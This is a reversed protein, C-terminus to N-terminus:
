DGDTWTPRVLGAEYATVVLQARDRASLKSMIRSVHTKATAPSLFLKGAIEDNSMGTAVLKLVETERETLAGLKSSPEPRAVRGAFEGILRRTIKPSILAEGEAVVRIGRLLEDPDTDKVLFGSAGARLARYVYDDEDFTTLIIVKVGELKPDIGIRETAELGDVGPMRIDMLVVDPRHRRILELAEAGDSAEATIEIDDEDGIISAFGARVLRQDDVLVVRIM